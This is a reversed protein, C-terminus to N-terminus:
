KLDSIFVYYGNDYKSERLINQELLDYFDITKIFEFEYNGLDPRHKLCIFQTNNQAAFEAERDSITITNGNLSTKVDYYDGDIILDYPLYNDEPVIVKKNKTELYDILDETIEWQVAFGLTKERRRVNANEFMKEANIQHGVYVDIIEGPIYPINKNLMKKMEINKVCHKM